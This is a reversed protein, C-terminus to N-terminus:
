GSASANTERTCAVQAFWKHLGSTCVVQASWGKRVNPTLGEFAFSRATRDVEKFFQLVLHTHLGETECAEFTAGWRRGGWKKLLGRAFSVFRHWQELDTFGNYTLLVVTSHVRYEKRQQAKRQAQAALTGAGAWGSPRGAEGTSAKRASEWDAKANLLKQTAEKSGGKDPHAKLLVKKYAKVLLEPSSDRNVELVLEYRRSLALLLAVFARTAILIKSSATRSLGQGCCPYKLM